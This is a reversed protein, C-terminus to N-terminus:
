TLGGFPLNDVYTPSPRHNVIVEPIIINEFIKREDTRSDILCYRTWDLFETLLDSKAEESNPYRSFDFRDGNISIIKLGLPNRKVWDEQLCWLRKWYEEKENLEPRRSPDEEARERLRRLFTDFELRLYFVLDSTPFDEDATVMGHYFDDYQRRKEPFKELRAQAYLANQWIPPGSLVPGKKLLDEIGVVGLAESGKVRLRSEYLFFMQVSLALRGDTDGGEYYDDFNPVDGVSVEEIFIFGLEESISGGATSKGSAPLGTIQFWFHRQSEKEKSKLEESHLPRETM